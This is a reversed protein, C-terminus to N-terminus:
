SSFNVLAAIMASVILGLYWDATSYTVVYWVNGIPCMEFRFPPSHMANCFLVCIHGSWCAFSIQLPGHQAMRSIVACHTATQTAEAGSCNIHDPNVVLLTKIKLGDACGALNVPILNELPAVYTLRLLNHQQLLPTLAISSTCYRKSGRATCLQRLSWSEERTVSQRRM